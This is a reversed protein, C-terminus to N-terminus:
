GRVRHEVGDPGGVVLDTTLGVFLGVEVVGARTRLETELGSPDGISGFACDLILNGNDTVFPEGDEGLRLRPRGGVAEIFRSEPRWGFPVVEVPLDHKEGLSRSLKSDDVVIAVRRSAQAVIKERLLAGGGGKILNMASDVEDAGDIALDVEPHDQLTTLPIGLERALRKTGSSTAIGVVGDLEGSVMREKLARLALAASTGTGLGLVMGPEALSAAFVAAQRKREAPTNM